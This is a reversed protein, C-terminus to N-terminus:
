DGAPKEVHDIVLFERPVTQPELRLGLQEQVATFLSPASLEDSKMDDPTWDLIFDYAETLGTKDLVPRDTWGSGAFRAALVAMTLKKAEVHGRRPNNQSMTEAQSVKLKPGNKAVVLAYVPTARTERHIVLKFRDALLSQLMPPIQDEGRDPPFTAVIEYALPYRFENPVGSIQDAEIGFARIILANLGLNAVHIRGPGIKMGVMTNQGGIPPSVKVSAVEFAPSPPKQQASLSYAASLVIAILRPLRM